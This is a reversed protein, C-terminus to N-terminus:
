VNEVVFVSDGIERIQVDFVPDALAALQSWTEQFSELTISVKEKQYSTRNMRTFLRDPDTPHWRFTSRDVKRQDLYNSVVAAFGEHAFSERLGSYHEDLGAAPEIAGNASKSPNRGLVAITARVAERAGVATQNVADSLLAGRLFPRDTEPLINLVPCGMVAAEVGTTCGTNLMIAAGLLWGLHSNDRIVRVKPDGQFMATWTELKESQHPRVIITREPEAAGLLRITEACVDFNAKDDLVHQDFLALDESNNGDIWGTQIQVDRLAEHSGFSTNHFGNNTNFLIYKGYQQRYREGEVVHAARFPARLLDLRPNGVVSVKEDDLGLRSKLVSAHFKGQALFIECVDLMELAIDRAIHDADALGMAEEDNAAVVHGSAKVHRMAHSQNANMGKFLIVGRPMFEHNNVMLWQQGIVITLGRRLASIGVLVKSKLERNTEEIPLYLVPSIDPM